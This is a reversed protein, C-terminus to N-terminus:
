YENSLLATQHSIDDIVFVTISDLVFYEEKAEIQYVQKDQPMEQTHEVKLNGSKDISFRFVQLYDVEHKEEVRDDISKWILLQIEFPIKENVGRTVYRKDKSLFYGM